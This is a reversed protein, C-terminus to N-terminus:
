KKSKTQKASDAKIESEKKTIFDNVATNIHQSRNGGLIKTLEDLRNVLNIDLLVSIQAKLISM